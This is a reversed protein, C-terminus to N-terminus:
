LPSPNILLQILPNRPYVMTCETTAMAPSFMTVVDKSNYMKFSFVPGFPMVVSVSIGLNIKCVAIINNGLFIGFNHKLLSLKSLMCTSIYTPKKHFMMNGGLVGNCKQVIPIVNCNQKNRACFWIGLAPCYQFKM